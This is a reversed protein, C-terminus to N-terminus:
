EDDEVSLNRRLPTKAGTTPEHRRALSEVRADIEPDVPIMWGAWEECEDDGM